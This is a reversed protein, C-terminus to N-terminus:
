RKDTLSAVKSELAEAMLGMAEFVPGNPIDAGLMKNVLLRVQKGTMRAMESAVGPQILEASAKIRDRLLWYKVTRCLADSTEM